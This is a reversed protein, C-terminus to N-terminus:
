EGGSEGGPSPAHQQRLREILERARQAADEAEGATPALANDAGRAQGEGPQAAGPRAPIERLGGGTQRSGMAGRNGVVSFEANADPTGASVRFMRSWAAALTPDELLAAAMSLRVKGSLEAEASWRFEGGFRIPTNAIQGSVETMEWVGDECTLRCRFQEVQPNDVRDSLLEQRLTEFAEFGMIQLHDSSVVCSLRPRQGPAITLQGDELRLLGVFREAFPGSRLLGRPTLGEGRFTLEIPGEGRLPVSGAFNLEGQPAPDLVEAKLSQLELVRRGEGALHGVASAVKLAPWGALRLEGGFLTLRGQQVDYGLAGEDYGYVEGRARDEPQGPFRVRVRNIAIQELGIEAPVPATWPGAGGAPGAGGRPFQLQAEATKAQIYPLQLSKSGLLSALNTSSEVGRLEVEALLEDDGGSYSIRNTSLQSFSVKWNSCQVAGPLRQDLQSTFASAYHASQFRNIRLFWLGVALLILAALAVWSLNLLRNLARSSREKGSSSSSGTSSRRRRRVRVRKEGTKEDVVVEETRREGSSKESRLRRMIEDYDYGSHDEPRPAPM